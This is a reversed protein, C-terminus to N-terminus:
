GTIRDSPVGRGESGPAAAPLAPVYVSIAAGTAVPRSGRDRPRVPPSTREAVVVKREDRDLDVRPSCEHEDVEIEVGFRQLSEQLAHRVIRRPETEFLKIAGEVEDNRHRAIPLQDVPEALRIVHLPQMALHVRHRVVHVGRLPTETTVPAPSPAVRRRPSRGRPKVPRPPARDPAAPDGDARSRPAPARPRTHRMTLRCRSRSCKRPM